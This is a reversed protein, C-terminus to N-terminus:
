TKLLLQLKRYNEKKQPSIGPHGITKLLLLTTSEGWTTTVMVEVRQLWSQSSSPSLINTIITTMIISDYVRAVEWNQFTIWTWESWLELSVFNTDCVDLIGTWQVSKWASLKWESFHERWRTVFIKFGDFYKLIYPHLSIISSYPSYLFLWQM